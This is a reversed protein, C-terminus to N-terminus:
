KIPLEYCAVEEANRVLLYPGSFAPNNWTIQDEPLVRLAALEHYKEPSVEILLLEGSESLVLIVEGLLIIQGHGIAPTRRKKWKSKGTKLEICQMLGGDLGYVFGERFVANGM